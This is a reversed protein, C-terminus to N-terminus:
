PTMAAPFGTYAEFITSALKALDIAQMQTREPSQELSVRANQLSALSAMDGQVLIDDAEAGAGVVGRTHLYNLADALQLAWGFVQMAPRPLSMQSLRVGQRPEAVAYYRTRGFPTYNFFDVVPVLNPHYLQLDMLTPDQMLADPTFSEAMLYFEAPAEKQLAAGCHECNNADISSLRGCNGCKQQRRPVIRYLNREPSHHLQTQVVYKGTVVANAPLPTLEEREAATSSLPVTKAPEAASGEVETGAVQEPQQGEAVAQPEAEAVAETTEAEAVPAEDAFAEPAIDALMDGESALFTDEKTSVTEDAEETTEVQPAGPTQETDIAMEAVGNTSEHAEAREVQDVQDVQGADTVGNTGNQAASHEPAQPEEKQQAVNEAPRGIRRLRNM